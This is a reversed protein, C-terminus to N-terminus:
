RDLVPICGRGRRVVQGQGEAKDGTCIPFSLCRLRVQTVCSAPSPSSDVSPSSPHQTGGGLGPADQATDALCPLVQAPRGPQASLSFHTWHPVLAPGPRTGTMTASSVPCLFTDAPTGLGRRGRADGMPEGEGSSQAEETSVQVPFPSGENTEGGPCLLRLETGGQGSPGAWLTNRVTELSIPFLWFSFPPRLGLPTPEAHGGTPGEPAPAPRRRKKPVWPLGVSTDAM